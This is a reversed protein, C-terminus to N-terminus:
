VLVDVVNGIIKRSKLIEIENDPNNASGGGIIGLDEFAALEASIGSKQNDKIMISTIASYQTTTYRLYMYAGILALIAGIVFWKWHTLYKGLEDRLNITDNSEFEQNFVLNEKPEQM